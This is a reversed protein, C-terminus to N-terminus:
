TYVHTDASLNQSVSGSLSVTVVKVTVWGGHALTPARVHRGSQLPAGGVAKVHRTGWSKM